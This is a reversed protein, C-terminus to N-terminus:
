PQKVVFSYVGTEPSYTTHYSCGTVSDDTDTAVIVYYITTTTGSPLGYNPNDIVAAFNSDTTTGGSFTMPLFTMLTLDPNNPDAPADTSWYVNADYVGDSDTVEAYLHLNGTTTINKHPSHTIAPPTTDCVPMPTPDPTPM